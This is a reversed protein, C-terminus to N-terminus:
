DTKNRPPQPNQLVKGSGESNLRKDEKDGIPTEPSMIRLDTTRTWAGGGILDTVEAPIGIERNEPLQAPDKRTEETASKSDYHSNLSYNIKQRGFSLPM